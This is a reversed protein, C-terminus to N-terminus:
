RFRLRRALDATDKATQKDYRRVYLKYCSSKWRGAKKLSDTSNGYHARLSAGGIRLSHGSWTKDDPPKFTKIYNVIVSKRIPEVSNGGPFLPDGPSGSINELISLIANIPDLCNPQKALRVYQSEGPAATKALRLRLRAHSGDVNINVDKRRIFIDPHDNARTLEGLRALGWFGVLIVGRLVLGNRTSIDLDKVLNHVDTLTFGIRKTSPTLEKKRTAKLILRIRHVNVPPFLTDHLVHWMRLGTLYRKMTNSLVTHEEENEGCWCLFAYINETTAPFPDIGKQGTFLFYRNVAAAYHKVTSAAWGHTLILNSARSLTRSFGPKVQRLVNEAHM